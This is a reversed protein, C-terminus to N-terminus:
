ISKKMRIKVLGTDLLHLWKGPRRAKPLAVQGAPGATRTLFAYCIQIFQVPVSRLFSLRTNQLIVDSSFTIASAETRVEVSWGCLLSTHWVKLPPPIPLHLVLVCIHHTAECLFEYLRLTHLTQLTVSERLRVSFWFFPIPVLMVYHTGRGTFYVCIHVCNM